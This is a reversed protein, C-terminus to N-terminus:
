ETVASTPLWARRTSCILPCCTPRGIHALVHWPTGLIVGVQPLVVGGLGRSGDSRVQLAAQAPAWCSRAHKGFAFTQGATVLRFAASFALARNALAFRQIPKNVLVAHRKKVRGLRLDM